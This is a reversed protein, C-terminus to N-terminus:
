CILKLRTRRRNSFVYATGNCPASGLAQQVWLSLEDIGARM